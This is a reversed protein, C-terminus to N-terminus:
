IAKDKEIKRGIRMSLREREGRCDRSRQSLPVKEPLARCVEELTIIRNNDLIKQLSHNSDGVILSVATPNNYHEYILPAYYPVFRNLENGELIKIQEAHMLHTNPHVTTIITPKSTNRIKEVLNRRIITELTIIQQMKGALKAIRFSM